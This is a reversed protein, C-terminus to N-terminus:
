YTARDPEADQGMNRACGTSIHEGCQGRTQEDNHGADMTETAVVYTPSVVKVYFIHVAHPISHPVGLVAWVHRVLRVFNAADSKVDGVDGGFRM